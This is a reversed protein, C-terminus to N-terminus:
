SIAKNSSFKDDLICMAAILGENNSPNGIAIELLPPLDNISGHRRIAELAANRIIWYDHCLMKFITPLKARTATKGFATGALRKIFYVNEYNKVPIKSVPRDKETYYSWFESANIIKELLPLHRNKAINSIQEVVDFANWFDIKGKYKLFLNLLFTFEDEGGFKCLAYVFERASPQLAIRSLIRKLEPLDGGTSINYSAKAVLFPYKRYLPVLDKIRLTRYPIDIAELTKEVTLKNQASLHEHLVKENGLRMALRVKTKIVANKIKQTGKGKLLRQLTAFDQSDGKRALACISLLRRWKEHSQLGSRIEELSLVAGLNLAVKEFALITNRSSSNAMTELTPADSLRVLRVLAGESAQSVKETKKRNLKILLEFDRRTAFDSIYGSMEHQDKWASFAEALSSLAPKEDLKMLFRYAAREIEDRRESLLQQTWKVLKSKTYRAAWYRIPGNGRLYSELLIKFENDTCLIKNRFKYIHLHEPTTLGAKTTEYAGARSALLDKFKKAEREEVSVLESTIIKALFDHAIEYSGNVSRVLRLDILLNLTTEVEASPVLSETSIEELTKQAKTGYSSVLAILIQKGVDSKKGLYKLQNMLYDAIIKKSQGASYYQRPYYCGHKDKDEFIRAIIMQMFPPYIGSYGSLFSETELDALVQKIFTGAPKSGEKVTIGLAGLTSELVSRANKKELPGIYIRPLGSPSGSIRQWITGIHSEVGGRYSILVKLNEDSSRFINLLNTTVVGIDSSERAALMDEFQDIVVLLQRAQHATSAAKAVSAFDFEVPLEGELLQDWLFRKLNKVPETLPRIVAAEWGLERVKNLLGACVLSTKGVGSAGILLSMKHKLIQELLADIEANRGFFLKALDEGYYEMGIPRQLKTRHKLDACARAKFLRQGGVGIKRIVDRLILFPLNDAKHFFSVTHSEVLRKKFEALKKVKDPNREILNLPWEAKPYIVYLLLGRLKGTDLMSKAKLYELETVSKGTKEDISGYREAYVGLFIDCKMVQALSYDVPKSEDSGFIEMAILDSKLVGLYKIINERAGVLDM